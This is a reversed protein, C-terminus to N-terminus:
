ANRLYFIANSLKRALWGDRNITFHRPEGPFITLAYRLPNLRIDLPVPGHYDAGDFRSVLLYRSNFTITHPDFM